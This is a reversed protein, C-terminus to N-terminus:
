FGGPAAQMPAGSDARIEVTARYDEPKITVASRPEPELKILVLRYGLAGAERPGGSGTHVDLLHDPAMIDPNAYGITFRVMADGETACVVDTACRSDGEVGGFTISQAGLLLEQGPTFTTPVGLHVVSTLARDKEGACSAATLGLLVTAIQPARRSLLMTKM